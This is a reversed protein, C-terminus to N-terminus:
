TGTRQESVPAAAAAQLLQILRLAHAEISVLRQEASALKANVDVVQAELERQRAQVKGLMSAIITAAQRVDGETAIRMVTGTRPQQMATAPASM